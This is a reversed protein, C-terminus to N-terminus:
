SSSSALEPKLNAGVLIVAAWGLMFCLGGSPVIAWHGMKGLFAISYLGGSFLLIGLLWFMIAAQGLRSRKATSSLGLALMALTHTMHYRVAVECQDLRKATDEVSLAQKKLFAELGHAAYAGILVGIVGLVGAIVVSKSM